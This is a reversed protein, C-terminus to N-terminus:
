NFFPSGITLYEELLDNVFYKPQLYLNGNYKKEHLVNYDVLGEYSCFVTQNTNEVLYAQVNREFQVTRLFQLEFYVYGSVLWIKIIKGFIPKISNESVSIM